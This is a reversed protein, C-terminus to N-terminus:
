LRAWVQALGIAHALGFVSCIASSWWWFATSRGAAFRALPLVALGRLLYVGTIVCLATRLLPLRPIVGAGSLAYAAWTILIAVIGATIMTPRWSGAAALQAMQEGAGFFRYWPAGFVICGVHLLAAVASLFAGVILFSNYTHNMSLLKVVLSM